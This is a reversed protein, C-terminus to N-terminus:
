INRVVEGMIGTSKELVGREEESLAEIQKALARVRRERGETLM